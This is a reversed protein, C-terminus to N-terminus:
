SLPYKSITVMVAWHTKTQITNQFYCLITTQVVGHNQTNVAKINHKFQIKTTVCVSNNVATYQQCRWLYQETVHKM